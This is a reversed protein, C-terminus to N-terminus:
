LFPHQQGFGQSVISTVLSFKVISLCKCLKQRYAISKANFNSILLVQMVKTDQCYNCMLLLAKEAEESIFTNTDQGKKLLIKVINELFPEM